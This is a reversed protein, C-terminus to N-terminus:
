RDRQDYTDILLTVILGCLGAVMLFAGAQITRGDFLFLALTFTLAGVVLMLASLTIMLIVLKSM